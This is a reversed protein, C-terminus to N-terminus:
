YRIMLIVIFDESMNIATDSQDTIDIIIESIGSQLTRSDSWLLNQPESSQVYGARATLGTSYLVSSSNTGYVFNNSLNTKVNIATINNFAAITDAYVIENVTNSQSAPYPTSVTLGLITFPSDTHMYVYWGILTGDFQFYIKNQSYDPLIQFLGPAVALNALENIIFTNLTEPEYSGDPVTISYKMEQGPTADDSYYIKNNGLAASINKFWNTFSFSNVCIKPLQDELRLPDKLIYQARGNTLDKITANASNLVLIMDRTAM